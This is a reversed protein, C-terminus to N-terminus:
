LLVLESEGAVREHEEVSSKIRYQLEGDREPLQKRIEYAGRASSIPSGQKPRFEVLQGIHFKHGMRNHPSVDMEM